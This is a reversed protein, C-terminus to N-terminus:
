FPIEDEETAVHNGAPVPEAERPQKAEFKIDLQPSREHQSQNAFVNVWYDVGDINISGNALRQKDPDKERFLVSAYCARSDAHVMYISHSPRKDDDGGAPGNSRVIAVYYKQHDVEASGSSAVAKWMGGRNNNDYQQDAV